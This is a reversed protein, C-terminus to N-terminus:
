LCRCRRETIPCNCTFSCCQEARAPRCSRGSPRCTKAAETTDEDGELLAIGEGPATPCTGGPPPAPEMASANTHGGSSREELVCAPAALALLLLSSLVGLHRVRCLVIAQM